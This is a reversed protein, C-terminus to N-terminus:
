MSGPDELGHTACINGYVTKNVQNHRKLYSKGAQLKYEATEPLDKLCDEGQARDTTTSRPWRTNLAQEVMIGHDWGSTYKRSVQAHAQGEM